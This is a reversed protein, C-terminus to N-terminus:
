RASGAKSSQFEGGQAFRFCVRDDDAVEALGHEPRQLEDGLFLGALELAV